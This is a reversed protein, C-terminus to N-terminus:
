AQYSEVFSLAATGFARKNLIVEQGCSVLMTHVIFINNNKVFSLGEKGERTVLHGNGNM